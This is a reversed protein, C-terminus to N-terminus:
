NQTLAGCFKNTALQIASWRSRISCATCESFTSKKNKEYYEHVRAWFRNQNILGM